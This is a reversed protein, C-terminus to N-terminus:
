KHSILSFILREAQLSILSYSKGSLVQELVLTEEAVAEAPSVGLEEPAMTTYVQVAAAVKKTRGEAQRPAQTKRVRPEEPAVVEPTGVEAPVTPVQKVQTEMEMEAVPAVAEAVTGTVLTTGMEGMGVTEKRIELVAQRKDERGVLLEVQARVEKPSLSIRQATWTKSTRTM